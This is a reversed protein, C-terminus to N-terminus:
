RVQDQLESSVVQSLEKKDMLAELQERKATAASLEKNKSTLEVM